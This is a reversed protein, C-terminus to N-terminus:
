DYGGAPFAIPGAGPKLGVFVPGDAGINTENPADVQLRIGNGIEVLYILRSGGYVRQRITGEWLTDDPSSSLTLDEPRTMLLAEGDQLGPAAKVSFDRRLGAMTVATRGGGLAGARCLSLNAAGLFRAVFADAPTDYVDSPSGQQAVAARRMVILDDALALAESQDHTIYIMTIGLRQQLERLELRVSERLLADLNSLPEDMLLVGPQSAFARALAVRQQEGGSLQGPLRTDYGKLGVMELAWATTSQIEPTPRRKVKLPFGINGGVTMHPWLGYSQFVMGIERQHPPVNIGKTGDFVARDELRILGSDATELGAICRLLTTKGSGSPGLIVTIKGSRFRLSVDNIANHGKFRKILREVSCEM